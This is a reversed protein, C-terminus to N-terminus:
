TGGVFLGSLILLLPLLLLAGVFGWLRRNTGVVWRDLRLVGDATPKYIFALIVLTVITVGIAQALVIQVAVPNGLIMAAVLTDALTMINAGMIYPIAERRKVIGKSALPVLVTLAVSVSLTLTAVLCGILFMPWPRKLWETRRDARRESGSMQPLARDLLKFSLLLVGLGIPLMVWLEPDAATASSGPVLGYLFREVPGWVYDVVGLLDESAHWRIGSLAESSLLWYGIVFGPLYVIATLSLALVGMGISERRNHGRNRLAYLFGTLLVIFSAGLRSGSLMTFTELPSIVGGDFLALSTAAVPSGSLVVYASIWGFGLTSAGNSFLFSGEIGPAVAKAGTKMLQLALIFLFLAVLFTAFKTAVRVLTNTARKGPRRTESVRRRAAQETAPLDVIGDAGPPASLTTPADDPADMPDDDSTMFTNPGLARFPHSM